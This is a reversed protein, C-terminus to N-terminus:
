PAPPTKDTQFTGPEFETMEGGARFRAIVTTGGGPCSQIEVTGGVLAARERMGILGLRKGKAPDPNAELDFGVGDDQVTATVLDDRWEVAVRVRSAHAHRFVNTLSEQVVRYIVTEVARPLREDAVADAQFDIATAPQQTAWDAVLQELAAHLGVDDLAVPRLNGALDRVARRLENAVRRVLGLSAAAGPPLPGAQEVAHLGMNLATLLQAINDHLDRAIRRREDEQATVLKRVLEARDAEARRLDTVDRFVWRFGDPGGEATALVLVDRPPEGRRALRTEFSDSAAGQWLRSLSEYFRARYGNAVFLGIPKGPLFEKPCRFVAAVAQNARLILGQGDTVALADTAFEFELDHRVPNVDARATGDDAPRGVQNADM